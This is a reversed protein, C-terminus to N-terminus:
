IDINEVFQANDVIFRKRLEVNEGMLSSFVENALFVDEVKIQIMTRRQPDMTTEWLQIPDMEGLGKYRQIIYKLNSYKEIKLKELENDTYAYDINNKGAEIKYLPPQAIYVNGNIILDKMYRYFFTLLLVRIHAGDVDADTMIIIKGYRIKKLNLDKKVGAGIAAIISQIETNEFAKSQKVKEVNLVKGRLSLIAQFKRNRGTKASGGASDGEVLYLECEDINKSECDALKGPLSFNDIASKRRTDERARQAAKRAKQSVLIKEIIKKADTPNKLLFEKFADNLINTVVEKADINSLKSKTQGEYIPDRHKISIVSVIGEKIDDWSFKNGKFNKLENAYSNISKILANKFGEEHTGGESTFINNCFSFVNEDYSENYQISIEVDIENLNNSIYFIEENIKEKGSNIEKIYDKIGDEFCYSLTKDKIEDYLNLKLGKNLFALQKIKNQIIKFDFDITEKFIEPDPKFKVITGNIDSVGIESLKSAETGGKSFIQEYIKNNRMVITKVYLSLANVVSAGVGHLGGSVKYASEDFKGGAHLVTFITELTSKNTKPHIDIPIGRGNDKVIIEKKETIIITIENCFGALSEDVSNDLIEWILHHLGTKNTNGIYMGPRKRVAELGELVQIQDAGYKNNNEM